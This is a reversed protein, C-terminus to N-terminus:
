KVCKVAGSPDGIAAPVIQGGEVDVLDLTWIGMESGLSASSSWLYASIPDFVTLDLPTGFSTSIGYDVLTLLEKISPLRFGPGLGSCYTALMALSTPSPGVGKQWTLGTFTDLVLDAAPQYRGGPPACRPPLMGGDRVCRVHMSQDIFATGLSGIAFSVNWANDPHVAMGTSSWFAEYPTDPFATSDISPYWQTFDLLSVLELVTPLRWDSNGGLRNAACYAAAYRLPCYLLGTVNVSCGESGTHGPMQREWALGTVQDTVIGSVSTDYRAPNPLGTAVPNPMVFGCTPAGSADSTDGGADSADAGRADSSESGGGCGTVLITGLVWACGRHRGALGTGM